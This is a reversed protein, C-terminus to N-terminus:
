VEPAGFVKTTWEQAKGVVAHIKPYKVTHKDIWTRLTPSYMSFLLASITLFLWGQLLPLVLGALGLVLFVAAVTLIFIKKAQKKLM